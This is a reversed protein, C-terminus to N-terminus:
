RLSAKRALHQLRRMTTVERRGSRTDIIVVRETCSYCPDISTIILPLDTITYGRCMYPVSPWNNYTPARVKWRLIRGGHWTVVFHIVEGRPAEVVSWDRRDPAVDIKEAMIPGKPLKELADEIMDLSVLVERLRVLHKALVDGGSETVIEFPLDRYAAYPHDRRADIRLGSGRATPGVVGLARAVGPPLVGVGSMRDVVSRNSPLQDLVEKIESRMERILKLAKARRDELIDRRVGGVVNMGYTKRNGTLMEALDMAKERVRFLHMFGWDFAALHCGLGVILLHSHIREIELMISRIYLAREPVEIGFASEVTQCYCCSHSFGCIGCIREALFPIQHYHMRSVGLKEIGRHIHFLRYDVDIVVDGDTYVRFQGPEDSTPHIPGVPLEVLETGELEMRRPAFPYPRPHQPPRYSYDFEDRLPYVGEPWDDPLVLRRPDPHGVPELGLLDRIEREAWNAAPVRPTASPYRPDEPPVRSAITVWVRPTEEDAFDISLVYYVVFWGRYRREDSGVVTSLRGGLEWHVYAVVDSLAERRVYVLLKDRGVRIVEEIAQPFAEQLSKVVRDLATM